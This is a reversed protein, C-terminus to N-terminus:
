SHRRLGLIVRRLQDLAFVYSRQQVAEREGPLLVKFPYVKENENAVAIWVTGVPKEPTGGDPGAIGTIALGWTSHFERCVGLAMETVTERSVAGYEALTEKKVGIKEQKTENSYSVIGGLFYRSAGPVSTIKSSLLGGTCSEAVSVTEKRTKLLNGIVEELTEKEGESYVYEGLEKKILNACGLLRQESTIKEGSLYLSIDVLGPSSLSSVVLDEDKPLVTRLVQDISSEGISTFHLYYANLTSILNYKKRLFPIVENFLMPELERPPGPLAIVIREGADFLLGPATGRPNTFFGGSVPVLAQRRNNEAMTRGSRKFLAGVMELADPDEKLPINTAESIADRTVDDVTPGLGGTVVTIKTDAMSSRLAKVLIKFKDGVITVKECEMGLANLNKTLLPVHSDIRRGSLIEDGSIVISYKMVADTAIDVM